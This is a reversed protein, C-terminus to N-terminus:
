NRKAWVEEYIKLMHDASYYQEIRQRCKAKNLDSNLSPDGLMCLIGEGLAISNGPPVILGTDGIIARAEGVDTSINPVGCAMSEAIVNGFSEASSSLIHLNLCSMIESIDNRPGLLVVIDELGLKIILKKLERNAEHMGTGALICKFLPQKRRNILSLAQLLNSHDKYIDWRAICGILFQDTEVGFEKRLENRKGSSDNFFNLDVGNAIITNQSNRFGYLQHQKLSKSSVFVCPVQYIDAIKALTKALIITIRSNKYIDLDANHIGFIIRKIGTIKGAFWAALSGHYMWGQLITPKEKNIIKILNLFPSFSLKRMNMKLAYIKAGKNKLREGYFGYDKLSIIIHDQPNSAASILRYLVTEAGGQDLCTILHLTKM